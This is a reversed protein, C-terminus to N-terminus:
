IYGAHQAASLNARAEKSLKLYGLGYREALARQVSEPPKKEGVFPDGPSSMLLVFTVTYVAWLVVLSQVFRSVLFRVMDGNDRALGRFSFSSRQVIFASSSTRKEANM